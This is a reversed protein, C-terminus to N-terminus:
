LLAGSSKTELTAFSTGAAAGSPAAVRLPVIAVRVSASTLQMDPVGRVPDALQRGTGVALSYRPSLTWVAALYFASQSASTARAGVRFTETADFLVPGREYRLGTAFDTLDYTASEDRLFLGAAELLSHDDSRVRSASATAEFDGARWW